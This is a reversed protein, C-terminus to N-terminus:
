FGDYIKDINKRLPSQLSLLDINARYKDNTKKLLDMKLFEELERKLTRESLSGYEKALEANQFFVENISLERYIPFNLLIRRKRKFVDVVRYKINSFKGYVLKQWSITLLNTQIINITNILGDRFGQLAYEIFESLSGNINAKELQRYYEIKTDNYHNSLIHSAIDPNGARMLLYFELLRGTRGNGDGFPHIWELYVHTIIAQIVAQGFKQGKEFHFEKKLFNCLKDILEPVYEYDPPRYTGVFVNHARFQGPIGQFHEGLDKGVLYNFRKILDPSILNSKLEFIIDDRITTFADIINKVEIEQYEKSPPLSEGAQIKKIEEASLTNGEIATTAQAGKQLSVSLLQQHYDPLLPTISIANITSNIQGLFYLSNASLEWNVNFSIHSFEQMKFEKYNSLQYSM